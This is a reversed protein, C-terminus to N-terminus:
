MSGSAGSSSTLVVRLYVLACVAFAATVAFMGRYGIGVQITGCVAAGLGQSLDFFSSFTGVVSARENPAVGDLTMLLLAPYILSMGVAFVATGVYLGVISAWSAVIVMGAAGLLLAATCARRAGVRDPLRAGLIRIALIIVGYTLFVGGVRDTGLDSRAYLKVFGSWGALGILGLLLVVGPGLANRHLLPTKHGSAASERPGERTLCGLLAAVVACASSILWARTYHELGAGGLVAEGVFPGIALGGYVAISWYSVAQGRQDEPAADAVMTAGGVFFAAEGVGAVIRAFVLWQLSHVIGYGATAAAVVLAGGVLLLKRGRRDGLRGAFPRLLVAGLAFAGVAIGVTTGDGHLSRKAYIPIVPNLIALALFYAFGSAVICWFRFGFPNVFSSTPEAVVM